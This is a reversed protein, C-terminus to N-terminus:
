SGFAIISSCAAVSQADPIQGLLANVDYVTNNSLGSVDITTSYWTPVISSVTTSLTGKQSGVNITLKAQPSSTNTSNWLKAYITLTNISSVKTFKTNWVTSGDGSGINRFGSALFRNTNTVSAYAISIAQTSEGSTNSGTGSTGEISGEYEFVTDSAAPATKYTQDGYLISGSNATGSGLNATPIVGAGSPISSLSTLSSGSVKGATSITALKTDIIAASSNIDANVIGNTLSLKSYTIAASNSIDANVISGLLNLKSYSIAAISSIATDTISGAAYTDVGAQLYSYLSNENTNNQTPDITTHAVYSYTRSPAAAEVSFPFIILLGLLILNFKRM